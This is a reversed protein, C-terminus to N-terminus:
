AANHKARLKFGLVVLLIGFAMAYAGFWWTLVLVGIVPQMILLVGWIVSLIGGLILWLRGHDQHLKFAALIM